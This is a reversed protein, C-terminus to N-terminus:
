LSGAQLQAHWREGVYVSVEAVGAYVTRTSVASLAAWGKVVVGSVGDSIGLLRAFSLHTANWQEWSPAAPEFTAQGTRLGEVYIERVASWHDLELNVIEFGM